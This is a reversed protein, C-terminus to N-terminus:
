KHEIIWLYYAADPEHCNIIDFTQTQLKTTIRMLPGGKSKKTEREINLTVLQM